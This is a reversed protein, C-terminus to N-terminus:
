EGAGGESSLARKLRLTVVTGHNPGRNSSKIDLEAEILEARERMNLLGFSGREDYTQEVAQVDFGKGKDAM